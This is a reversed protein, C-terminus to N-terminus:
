YNGHLVRDMRKKPFLLLLLTLATGSSFIAVAISPIIWISSFGAVIDSKLNKLPGGYKFFCLCPNNAFLKTMNPNIAKLAEPKINFQAIKQFGEKLLSEENLEGTTITFLSIDTDGSFLTSIRLPYYLRSSKFEYVLPEVSKTTSNADIVDVAFFNIGDKVYVSFLDELGSPLEEYEIEIDSLFNEIWSILEQADEARVVTLDHVGIRQHFTIEVGRYNGEAGMTYSTSRFGICDLYSGVLNEVRYFSSTEGQSVSPNSPLPLFEIVKSEQSSNVDSSLILIEDTGNWSIIAKQGSEFVEYGSPSFGGRDAWVQPCLILFAFLLSLIFLAKFLKM